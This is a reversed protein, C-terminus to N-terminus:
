PKVPTQSINTIHIVGDEHLEGFVETVLERTVDKGYLPVSKNRTRQTAVQINYCGPIASSLRVFDSESIWLFKESM